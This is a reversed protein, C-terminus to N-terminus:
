CGGPTTCFHDASCHPLAFCQVTHHHGHAQSVPAYALGTDTAEHGRPTPCLIPSSHSCRFSIISGFSCVQAAPMPMLGNMPAHSLFGKNTSLCNNAKEKEPMKKDKKKQQTDKTHAGILIPSMSSPAADSTLLMTSVMFAYAWSISLTLISSCCVLRFCFSSVGSSM